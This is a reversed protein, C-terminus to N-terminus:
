SGSEQRLRGLAFRRRCVWRNGFRVMLWVERACAGLPLREVVGNPTADGYAVTLHPVIEEFAGGYPKHNPWERLMAETLAIFPETPEPALYVVGPFRRVERLVFDFESVESIASALRREIGRNVTRTRLFPYLITIHAPMGVECASRHRLDDASRVPVILATSSGRLLRRMVRRPMGITAVSSSSPGGASSQVEVTHTSAIHSDDSASESPAESGRSLNRLVALDARDRLRKRYNSHTAIQSEPTLCPVARGEITGITFEVHGGVIDLPQLDVARGAVPHDHLVIRSFLPVESAVDYWRSFGLNEVAKVARSMAHDDIVIDLDEHARTQRGALADIGWGGRLWYRVDARDLADVIKLVLESPMPPTRYILTSLRDLVAQPLPLRRVIVNLRGTIRYLLSPEFSM